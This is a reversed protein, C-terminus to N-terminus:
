HASGSWQQCFQCCFNRIGASKGGIHGAPLFYYSILAGIILGMFNMSLLNSVIGVLASYFVMNWGKKSRKMLGPIALAELVLSVALVVLSLTYTTGAQFGGLYSVPAFLTGIGFLVLVAPLSIVLLVLTIWPAIRVITEKVNPPLQPAKQGFYLDLMDELQNLNKPFAKEAM